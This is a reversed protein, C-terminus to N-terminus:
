ATLSGGDAERQRQRFLRQRCTNSCTQPIQSKRLWVEAETGCVVCVITTRRRQAALARALESPSQTSM